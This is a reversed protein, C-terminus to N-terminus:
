NARRAVVALLRPRQLSEDLEQARVIASREPSHECRRCNLEAFLKQSHPSDARLGRVRNQEVGPLVRDEHNISICLADHRPVSPNAALSLVFFNAPHELPLSWSVDFSELFKM